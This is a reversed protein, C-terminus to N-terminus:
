KGNLSDLKTKAQDILGKLRALDSSSFILPPLNYRFDRVTFQTRGTLRNGMAAVRFGGKTTYYADFSDLPTVSFEMNGLSDIADLLSAIEDYDILLPDRVTGSETVTLVLGREKHGAAIDTIERCRISVAGAAVAVSGIDTNGKVILLSNNTDFSELKTAPIPLSPANTPTQALLSTEATVCMLAASLLPLMKRM